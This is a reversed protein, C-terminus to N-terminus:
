KKFYKNELEIVDNVVQLMVIEFPYDETIPYIRIESHPDKSDVVAYEAHYRVVTYNDEQLLERHVMADIFPKVYTNNVDSKAKTPKFQISIVVCEKIFDHKLGQRKMCFECYKCLHDEWTSQIIRSNVNLFKNVSPILGTRTKGWLKEFPQKDKKARPHAKYYADPNKKDFGSYEKLMQEDFRIVIIEDLYPNSM